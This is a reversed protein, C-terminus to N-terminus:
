RARRADAAVVHAIERQHMEGYADAMHRGTEITAQALTQSAKERERQAFRVVARILVDLSNLEEAIVRPHYESTFELAIEEWISLMARTEPDTATDKSVVRLVPEEEADGVLTKRTHELAQEVNEVFALMAGEGSSDDIVLYLTTM